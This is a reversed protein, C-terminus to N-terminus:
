VEEENDKQLGYCIGIKTTLFLGERLIWNGLGNLGWGM